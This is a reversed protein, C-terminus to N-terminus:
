AHSYVYSVLVEFRHRNEWRNGITGVSEASKWTIQLYYKQKLHFSSVTQKRRKLFLKMNSLGKALDREIV